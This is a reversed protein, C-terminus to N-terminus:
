IDYICLQHLYATHFTSTPLQPSHADCKSIINLDKFYSIVRIYFCKYCSASSCSVKLISDSVHQHLIKYSCCKLFIVVSFYKWEVYIILIFFEVYLINLIFDLYM